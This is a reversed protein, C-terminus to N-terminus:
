LFYLLVKTSGTFNLIETLNVIRFQTKLFCVFKQDFLKASPKLLVYRLKELLENELIDWLDGLNPMYM